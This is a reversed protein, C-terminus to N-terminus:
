SHFSGYYRINRKKLIRNAEKAAIFPNKLHEFVTLVVACVFSNDKFPLSLADRFVDTDFVSLRSNIGITSPYDLGIHRDVKDFFRKREGCGIDLM